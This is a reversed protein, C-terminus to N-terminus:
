ASKVDVFTEHYCAGDEIDTRIDAPILANVTLGTDSSARWTGKPSYLVGPRTADSVKLRLTVAGQANWVTIETGDQLGRTQADFPHMEVEELGQSAPDSGFTANTRKSSSPTILTFPLSRVVPDYRPVGYGYRTQYAESFLEIKGSPTAPMVNHCLILSEGNAATMEIASDLPIQSPRQGALQPHDADIAEDMLQADSAQFLADDYGFRAALRRFIETNPLSEGVCPIVPAARQLYNQGYAGYIDDFEFHTAAPLIVDCMAMSDTMVVDCGAIFLDERMLAKILNAQDPHTAVPNHNYIMTAKIPTELSDDQLVAALDVINFCRTGPKILHDGHLRAQTKPTAVGSKALVGAGLRGHQGLLAPLVMAARLGSGGSRGREIGNGFACAMSKAAVMLDALAHFEEAAIGCLATVTALDYLRAQAMYPDFGTVWQDIFGKDLAARRELEAALGMALVVDTGPKIQLHMDCQEAIKIRKPDIVVLKGGRARMQKLLPALHLNSVTVNNGWVLVLDSHVVQMPPMGPANGFVSAYAGGRVGGCLPGRNLLSAGMHYFFRRDMSGAALEGHPGAYNFPLVSQPGHTDIAQTFGAHVMDLAADWSIQEFQGSGRPGVRKLPHTLRAKGHLFEPYYRAVKNCIVGDTYPNAKSGKVAVVRDDQVQVNLSCTDPCDLPCVSPLSHIELPKNM